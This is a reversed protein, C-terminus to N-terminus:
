QEAMFERKIREYEDMSIEKVTQTAGDIYVPVKKNVLGNRNKAVFMMGIPAQIKGPRGVSIMTDIIHQKRSSESAAELTLIEQGYFTIKPQSAILMVSSNSGGFARIKDYIVGASDYMTDASPKINSDYDIIIQDFHVNNKMQIKIIENILQDVGVLGSPLSVLWNNKIPSNPKAMLEKILESQEEFTMNLIDSLPRHAFNAIYRCSADYNNLDGLFIHLNTFGDEAASVGQNVLTLTKGVGPPASIMTLTGPVLAKHSFTDNIHDLFFRIKKTTKEDGIAEKRSKEFEEINGMHCPSTQVISFDTFVKLKDHIKGWDVGKDNKIDEFVKSFCIEMGNRKVFEEVFKCKVSTDKDVHEDIYDAHLNKLLARVNALETQNNVLLAVQIMMDKLTPNAKTQNHFETLSKYLTKYNDGQFFSESMIDKAADYIENDFILLSLVCDQLEASIGKVLAGTQSM